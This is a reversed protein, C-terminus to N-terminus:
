DCRCSFKFRSTLWCRNNARLGTAPGLRGKDGAEANVLGGCILQGLIPVRVSQRNDQRFKRRCSRDPLALLDFLQVITASACTARWCGKRKPLGSREATMIRCTGPPIFVVRGATWDAQEQSCALDAAQGVAISGPQWGPGPPMRTWSHEPPRGAGRAPRWAAHGDHGVRAVGAAPVYHLDHKPKESHSPVGRARCCTGLAKGGLGRPAGNGAGCAGQEPGYPPLLGPVQLLERWGAFTM